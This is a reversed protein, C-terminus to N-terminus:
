NEKRKRKMKCRKKKIEKNEPNNPKDQFLIILKYSKMKHEKKNTKM